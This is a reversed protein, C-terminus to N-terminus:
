LEEVTVYVVSGAPTYIPYVISRRGSQTTCVFLREKSFRGSRYYCGRLESLAVVPDATM